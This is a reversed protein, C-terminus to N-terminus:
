EIECSSHIPVNEIIDKDEIKRVGWEKKCNKYYYVSYVHIEVFRTQKDVILKRIEAPTEAINNDYIYKEHSIMEGYANKCVVLFKVASVTTSSKNCITITIQSNYYTKVVKSTIKLPFEEVYCSKDFVSETQPAVPKKTWAFSLRAFSYFTFVGLAFVIFFKVNKMNM